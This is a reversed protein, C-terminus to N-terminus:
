ERTKQKNAKENTQKHTCTPESIRPDVDETRRGELPGKPESTRPEPERAQTEEARAPESVRPDGDDSQFGEVEGKGM